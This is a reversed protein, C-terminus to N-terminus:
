SQRRLFLPKDKVVKMVSDDTRIHIPRDHTLIYDCLDDIGEREDKIIPADKQNSSTAVILDIKELLLYHIPTYPLMIGMEDLHPAIHRINKRKKLLVIPRRPSLLQSKEAPSTHAYKQVVAMDKAMLALPKTKRNKIQRLMKIASPNKADCVLHFGGLGKVALIKGQKLFSSAKDIGGKLEKRTRSKVLKIQPGCIPCAIPQAHYRRDLPNTYEKKCSSCMIFSKMTTQKRDYPLSQVITYRPGCDTCNIFPYRYRRDTPSMMEKFCNECVSIDPSIFVFSKEQKTKKIVFRELGFNSAPNVTIEKIQALPPYQESARLRKKKDKEIHIEVGFGINKVWGKYGLDHALRYIFPRFGVGQVVGFVVMEVALEKGRKM